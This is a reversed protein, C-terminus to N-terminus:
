WPGEPADNPIRSMRRGGLLTRDLRFTGAPSEVLEFTIEFTSGRTWSWMSIASTFKRGSALDYTGNTTWLSVTTPPGWRQVATRWTTRVADLSNNRRYNDTTLREWVSALDDRRVADVWPELWTTRIRDDAAMSRRRLAMLGYVVLSLVLVGVLLPVACGGWTPKDRSQTEVAQVESQQM